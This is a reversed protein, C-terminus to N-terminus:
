KYLNCQENLWYNALILHNLANELETSKLPIETGLKEKEIRICFEEITETNTKLNIDVSRTKLNTLIKILDNIKITLDEIQEKM